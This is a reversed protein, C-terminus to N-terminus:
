TVRRDVAFWDVSSSGRGVAARIPRHVLLSSKSVDGWYRPHFLTIAHGLRALRNAYEYVVKYGGVPVRSIGPLVFGIRVARGGRGEPSAASHEGSSEPM